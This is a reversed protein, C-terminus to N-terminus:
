VFLEDRPAPMALDARVNLANCKQQIQALEAVVMADHDDV